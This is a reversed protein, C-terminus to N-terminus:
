KRWDDSENFQMYSQQQRSVPAREEVNSDSDQQTYRGYM